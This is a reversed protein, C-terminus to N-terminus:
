CAALGCGDCQYSPPEVQVTAHEIHFRERLLKTAAALIAATDAGDPSVLHVSCVVRDNSLTWVHVDHVSAAVDELALTLADVDVHAPAGEMLVAVTERLLSIAAYSIMTAIMMSALPDAWRWDFFYIAAGSALAGVSGLTDSAVHLWVGRVNLNNDKSAALTRLALLNILLGGASVAMAIGGSVSPPASLRQVAEVMVFVAIAILAAANLTAALIESRAYGYTRKADPPRRAVWMAVLSLAIAAADSLMHGADALLALSGSLLGGVVEALMYSSTLALTIALARWGTSEASGHAHGHGHRHAHAM